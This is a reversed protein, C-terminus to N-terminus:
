RVKRERVSELVVAAIQDIELTLLRVEPSASTWELTRSGRAGKLLFETFEGVLEGGGKLYVRVTFVQETEAKM